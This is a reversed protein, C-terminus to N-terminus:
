PDNTPGAPPLGEGIRGNLRQLSRDLHDNFVETLAARLGGVLQQLCHKGLM